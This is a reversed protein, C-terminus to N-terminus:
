RTHKSMLSHEAHFTLDQDVLLLMRVKIKDWSSQNTNEWLARVLFSVFTSYEERDEFVLCWSQPVGDHIYNWTLSRINRAINQNMDCKIEHAIPIKDGDAALLYYEFQPGGHRQVIQAVVPQQEIFMNTDQEYLYLTAFASVFTTMQADVYPRPRSPQSYPEESSVPESVPEEKQQSSSSAKRTQKGKGKKPM